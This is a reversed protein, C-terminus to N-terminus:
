EDDEVRVGRYVFFMILDIENNRDTHFRVDIFDTNNIENDRIFFTGYFEIRSNKKIAEKFKFYSIRGEYFVNLKRITETVSPLIVRHKKGEEYVIVWTEIDDYNGLMLEPVPTGLSRFLVNFWAIQHGIDAYDRSSLGKTPIRENNKLIIHGDRFTTTTDAVINTRANYPDYKLHFDGRMDNFYPTTLYYNDGISLTQHHPFWRVLKERMTLFEDDKQRKISPTVSKLRILFPTDGSIKIV